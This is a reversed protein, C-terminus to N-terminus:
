DLRSFVSSDLEAANRKQRRERCRPQKKILSPGAHERGNQNEGARAGLRARLGRRAASLTAKVTGPAVQFQDALTRISLGFDFRMLFMARQREPLADLADRIREV